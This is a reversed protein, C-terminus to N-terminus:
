IMWVKILSCIINQHVLHLLIRVLEQPRSRKTDESPQEM